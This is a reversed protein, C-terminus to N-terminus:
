NKNSNGFIEEPKINWKTAIEKVMDVAETRQKAGGNLSHKLNESKMVYVPHIGCELLSYIMDTLSGYGIVDRFINDNLYAYRSSGDFSTNNKEDFVREESSKSAILKVWEDNMKIITWSIDGVSKKQKPEFGHKNKTM